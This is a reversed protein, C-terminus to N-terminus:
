HEEESLMVGARGLPAHAKGHRGPYGQGAPYGRPKQNQKQKTKSSVEPSRFVCFPPYKKAYNPSNSSFGLCVTTKLVFNLVTLRLVM